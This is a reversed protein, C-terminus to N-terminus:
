LLDGVDIRAPAPAGDAAASAASASASATSRIAAAAREEARRDAHVHLAAEDESLGHAKVIHQVKRAYQQPIDCVECAMDPAVFVARVDPAEVTEEITWSGTHSVGREGKLFSRGRKRLWASPRTDWTSVVLLTEIAFLVVAVGVTYAAWNKVNQQLGLLSDVRSANEMLDYQLQLVQNEIFTSSVTATVAIYFIGFTGLTANSVSVEVTEIGLTTTNLEAEGVASGNALAAVAPLRMAVAEVPPLSSNFPQVNLAIVFTGNPPGTVMVALQSGLPVSNSVPAASWGPVPAALANASLAVLAVLGVALVTERLM